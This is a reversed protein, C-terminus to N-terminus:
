EIAQMGENLITYRPDKNAIHRAITKRAMGTNKHCENISNYIIGNLKFKIGYLEQMRKNGAKCNHKKNIVSDKQNDSATGWALNSLTNNLKNDDLHRVIPYNNPNPIFHEAILRHVLYKHRKGEKYLYAYYYGNNNLHQKIYRNYKINKITGQEDITYNSFEKIIM